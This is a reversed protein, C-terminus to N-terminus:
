IGFDKNIWDNNNSLTQSPHPPLEYEILGLRTGIDHINKGFNYRLKEKQKDGEEQMEKEKQRMKFNTDSDFSSFVIVGIIGVTWGWIASSAGGVIIGLVVPIWCSHQHNLQSATVKSSVEDKLKGELYLYSSLEESVEQIYLRHLQYRLDIEQEIMGSALKLITFLQKADWTHGCNMCANQYNEDTGGAAVFSNRNGVGGYAFTTQCKLYINESGCNPCYVM